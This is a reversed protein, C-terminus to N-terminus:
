KVVTVKSILHRKGSMAWIIKVSEGATLTEAFGKPLTFASGDTLRLIMKHMNVSKVIGKSVHAFAALPTLAVVLAVLGTAIKKRM